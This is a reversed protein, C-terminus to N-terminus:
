AAVTSENIDGGGLLWGGGNESNRVQVITGINRLINTPTGGASAPDPDFILFRKSGASGFDLVTRGGFAAESTLTPPYYKVGTGWGSWSGLEHVLRRSGTKSPLAKVDSGEVTWGTTESADIWFMPEGVSSPYTADQQRTAAEIRVLSSTQSFVRAENAVVFSPPDAASVVLSAVAGAGILVFKM